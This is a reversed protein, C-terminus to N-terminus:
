RIKDGLHNKSEVCSVSEHTVNSVTIPHVFRGSFLINGVKLRFLAVFCDVLVNRDMDKPRSGTLLVSKISDIPSGYERWRGYDRKRRNVRM